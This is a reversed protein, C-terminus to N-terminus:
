DLKNKSNNLKFDSVEKKNMHKYKVKKVKKYEKNENKTDDYFDSEKLKEFQEILTNAESKELETLNETTFKVDRLDGDNIANLTKIKNYIINCINEEVTQAIWVIRQLAHSKSGARHIRGLVQMTDQGSWTPSIISMRPHGGHIDHLSIGVGGAQSICIIIKRKNNQFDDICSQREELTQQGHITCDCKLYHCLYNMTDRYNVFIVISYGNENADNVLDLIIPVKYMEIKMRAKIIKGLSDTKRVQNKLDALAENIINYLENVKDHDKSFYCKSIIQNQPFLNGLEKIKMRSGMNPFITNHIIELTLEDTTKTNSEYKHIKNHINIETQKLKLQRRLWIKYQKTNEYLGFIVGFPKFCEIKDTITASLLLIKRNTDRASVMLKSTATSANKCRHAEDFIVIVDNPLQFVFDYAKKSKKKKSVNKDESLQIKDMYPCTTIELNETYYKCGKLKEYNAIGLIKVNFLKAINIWINIVSKPCIIFPRLNMLLCLVIAIYTKGTGTDSADLVCNHIFLARYLNELHPIQYQLLKNKIEEPIVINSM